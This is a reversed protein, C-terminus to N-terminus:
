FPLDFDDPAVVPQANSLDVEDPSNKSSSKVWNWERVALNLYQDKKRLKGIAQVLDGKKIKEVAYKASKGQVICSVWLTEPKNKSGTSVALSFTASPERGEFIPLMAADKGAHGQFVCMNLYPM